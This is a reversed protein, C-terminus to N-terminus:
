ADAEEKNTLAITGSGKVIIKLTREDLKAMRFKEEELIANIQKLYNGRMRQDHVFAMARRINKIEKIYHSHLSFKKKNTRLSDMKKYHELVNQGMDKTENDLYAESGKLIEIIDVNCNSIKGKAMIEGLVERGLVWEGSRKQVDYIFFKEEM